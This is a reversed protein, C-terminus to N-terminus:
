YEIEHRKFLRVKFKIKKNKETADVLIPKGKRKKKHEKIVKKSIHRKFLTGIPIELHLHTRDEKSFSYIGEVSLDAATSRIDFHDIRIDLNDLHFTTRLSDFYIDDLHRKRFLFGTLNKVASFDVLEGDYAELTIEGKASEPIISLEKDINAQLSADAKIIGLVNDSGLKDQGFDDFAKFLQPANVENFHLDVSFKSLDQDLDKVFGHVDFTGDALLMSFKDLGIENNGIHTKGKIDTASFSHYKVQDMEAAITITAIKLLDDIKNKVPKEEVSVSKMEDKAVEKDQVFKEFDLYPCNLLADLHFDQQGDGFLFPILDPSQASIIIDNQNLSLSLEKAEFSENNFYIPGTVDQFSFGNLRNKMDVKNLHLSGKIDADFIYNDISLTDSLKNSYSFQLDVEGDGSIFNDNYLLRNLDKTPLDAAIDFKLGPDELDFLSIDANIPIDGFVYATFDDIDICNKQLGESCGKDLVATFSIKEAPYKPMDLTDLNVEVRGFVNGFLENFKLSLARPNIPEKIKGENRDTESNTASPKALVYKPVRLKIDLGVPHEQRGLARPLYDVFQGDLNVQTDDIILNLSSFALTDKDLDFSSSFDSIEIKSEEDKFDVDELKIKSDLVIDELIKDVDSLDNLELRLDSDFEIWGKTLKIDSEQMFEALTVAPSKVSLVSALLPISDLHYLLFEGQTKLSDSLTARVNRIAMDIEEERALSDSFQVSTFIDSAIHEDFQFKDISFDLNANYKDILPQLVTKLKYGITGTLKKDGIALITEMDLDDVAVSFNLTPKLNDRGLFGNGNDINGDLVLNSNNLRTSIHDFRLDLNKDIYVLGSFDNAKINGLNISANDFFAKAKLRKQNIKKGKIFAQLDGRYDFDVSATGQDILVKGFNNQLQNLETKINGILAIDSFNQLDYIIGKADVQHHGFLNGQIHDVMLCGAKDDASRRPRCSNSFNGKLLMDSINLKKFQLEAQTTEFSVLIEGFTEPSLSDKLSFHAAIPQDIEIQSIAKQINKSLLASADRILIGDSVIDLSLFKNDSKLLHGDITLKDNDVIIYSEAFSISDGIININLNLKADKDELFGGNKKKFFLGEFFCDAILSIQRGRETEETRLVGKKFKVGFSQDKFLNSFEADVNELNIKNLEFSAKNKGVELSDVEALDGKNGAKLNKLFDMNSMGLSDRVIRISANKIAFDKINYTQHLMEWPHILMSLQGIELLRSDMESPSGEIIMQSVNFALFPFNETRNIEYGQIEVKTGLKAEIARCLADPVKIHRSSSLFYLLSILLIIVACIVMLFRLIRKVSFVKKAISRLSM